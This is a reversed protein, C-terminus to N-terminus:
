LKSLRFSTFTQYKVGYLIKYLNVLMIAPLGIKHGIFVELYYLVINFTSSDVLYKLFEDHHFKLFINHVIIKLTPTHNKMNTSEGYQVTNMFHFSYTQTYM